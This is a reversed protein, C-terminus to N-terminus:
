WLLITQYDQQFNACYNPTDLDGFETFSLSGFSLPDKFFERYCFCFMEFTYSQKLRSIQGLRERNLDYAVQKDFALKKGFSYQKCKLGSLSKVELMSTLSRYYHSRENKLENVIIFTIGVVIGLTIM